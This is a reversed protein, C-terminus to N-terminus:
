LCCPRTPFFRSFSWRELVDQFSTSQTTLANQWLGWLSLVAAAALPSILFSRM